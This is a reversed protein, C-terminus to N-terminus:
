LLVTNSGVQSPEVRSYTLQQELCRQTRYTNDNLPVYSYNNVSKLSTNVSEIFEKFSTDIVDVATQFQQKWMGDWSWLCINADSWNFGSKYSSKLLSLGNNISSHIVYCRKRQYPDRWHTKFVQSLSILQAPCKAASMYVSSRETYGGSWWAVESELKFLCCSVVNCIIMCGCTCYFYLKIQSFVCETNMWWIAVIYM